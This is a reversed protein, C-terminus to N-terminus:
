AYLFKVVKCFKAFHQPLGCEMPKQKSWPVDEICSQDGQDRIETGAATDPGMCM